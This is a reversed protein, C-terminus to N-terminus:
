CCSKYDLITSYIFTLFRTFLSLLFFLVNNYHFYDYVLRVVEIIM